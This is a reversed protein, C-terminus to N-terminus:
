YPRTPESFTYLLCGDGSITDAGTGGTIKDKGAGATIIDAGGDGAIVDDGTGASITDAGLGGSIVDDGAAGVILDSGSGGDLINSALNGYLEDDGSEGYLSTATDDRIMVIDDGSGSRVEETSNVFFTNNISGEASPLGGQWDGDFNVQADIRSTKITGSDFDGAQGTNTYYEANLGSILNNNEVRIYDDAGTGKLAVSGDGSTVVTLVGDDFTLTEVESIINTGLISAMDTVTLTGQDDM